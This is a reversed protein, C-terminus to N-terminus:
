KVNNKVTCDLTCQYYDLCLIRRSASPHGGNQGKVNADLVQGETDQLDVGGILGDFGELVTREQLGYGDDGAGGTGMFGGILRRDTEGTFAMGGLGMRKPGDILPNRERGELAGQLLGTKRRFSGLGDKQFESFGPPGKGVLGRLLSRRGALRQRVEVIGESGKHVCLPGGKRSAVSNKQLVLRGELVGVHLRDLDKQKGNESLRKQHGTLARGEVKDVGLLLHGIRRCPVGAVLLALLTGLLSDV